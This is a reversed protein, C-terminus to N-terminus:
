AARVRATSAGALTCLRCRNAGLGPDSAPAISGIGSVQLSPRINLPM